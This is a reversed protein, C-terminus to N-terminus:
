AIAQSRKLRVVVGQLQTGFAAAAESKNVHPHNTYTQTNMEAYIM